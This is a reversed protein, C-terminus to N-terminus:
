EEGDMSHGVSRVAYEGFPYERVAYEGFLYERVAYEGFAYGRVPWAPSSGAVDPKPSRREVM